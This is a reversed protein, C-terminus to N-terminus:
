TLIILVLNIKLNNIKIPTILIQIKKIKIMLALYKLKTHSHINNKKNMRKLIKIKTKRLNQLTM